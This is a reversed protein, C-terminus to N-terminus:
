RVSSEKSLYRFWRHVLGIVEICCSVGCTVLYNLEMSVVGGVGVVVIVDSLECFVRFELGKCVYWFRMKELCKTDIGNRFWPNRIISIQNSLQFIDLWLSKIKHRTYFQSSSNDLSMLSSFSPNLKMSILYSNAKISPLAFTSVIPKQRSQSAQHPLAYNRPFPFLADELPWSSPHHTKHDIFDNHKQAQM